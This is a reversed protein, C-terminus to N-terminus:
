SSPGTTSRLRYNRGKWSPIRYLSGEQSRFQSDGVFTLVRHETGDVFGIREEFTV